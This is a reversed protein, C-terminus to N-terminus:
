ASPDFVIPKSIASCSPQSSGSWTTAGTGLDVRLDPDDSLVPLLDGYRWLSRPGAEIRARTVRAAIAAEDYAVELPGFCFGCVHSAAIPETEGCERCRLSTINPELEVDGHFTADSSLSGTRTAASAVPTM